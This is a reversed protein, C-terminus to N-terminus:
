VQIIMDLTCISDGAKVIVGFTQGGLLCLGSSWLIIHKGVDPSLMQVLRKIVEGAERAATRPMLLCVHTVIRTM